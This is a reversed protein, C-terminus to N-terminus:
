FDNWSHIRIAEMKCNKTSLSDHNFRYFFGQNNNLLIGFGVDFLQVKQFLDHGYRSYERLNAASKTLNWIFDIHLLPDLVRKAVIEVGSCISISALNLQKFFYMQNIGDLGIIWYVM